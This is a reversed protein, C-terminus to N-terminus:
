LMGCWERWNDFLAVKVVEQQKADWLKCLAQLNDGDPMVETETM